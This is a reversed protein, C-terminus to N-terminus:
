EPTLKVIFADDTGGGFAPSAPTTVTFDPSETRGSVLINGFADVTIARGREYGSGGLYSSYLLQSAMPDLKVM